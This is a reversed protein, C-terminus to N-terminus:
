CSTIRKIGRLMQKKGPPGPLREMEFGYATLKRRVEGKASYTVIIGNDSTKEYIKRFIDSTWMEPQKDPGFADFYIINFNKFSDLILNKVDCKIKMLSFYTSIKVTKDWECKHIKQFIQLAKESIIQGYNLQQLIQNEVPYKEVSYYTVIKKSQGAELATLMCNLGTGFGVEFVNPALENCFRFGKEIYVHMSETIAGNFSHYHENMEPLYITNSGDGTNILQMKM